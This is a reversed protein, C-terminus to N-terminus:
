KAKAKFEDINDTYQRGVEADAWDLDVPASLLGQITILATRMTLAPTWEPDRLIGLAINGTEPNINPHWIKTDFKM